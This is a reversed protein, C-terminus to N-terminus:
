CKFIGLNGKIEKMTDSIFTYFNLHHSKKEYLEKQELKLRQTENKLHELKKELDNKNEIIRQPSEIISETLKKKNETAQCIELKIDCLKERLAINETKIEAVIKEEKEVDQKVNNFVEELSKLEKDQGISKNKVSSLLMSKEEILHQLEKKNKM